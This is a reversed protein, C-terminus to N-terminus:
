FIEERKDNEGKSLIPIRIKQEQEQSKFVLWGETHEYDEGPKASSEDTGLAETKYYCSIEGDLGHQRLVTIYVENNSAIAKVQRQEFSLQGPKDDDIITVTSKCDEGELPQNTEPDYLVVYFDEDPEWDEDDVIGIQVTQEKEGGRFNLITDIKEYDKEEKADGDMTRVGVKGAKESKNIIVVSLKGSSESVMYHLCRFGFHPNKHHEELASALKTEKRFIEGKKIIDKKGTLINGVQKKYTIRPLLSTGEVAQKLQEYTIKDIHETDFKKKIFAKMDERKVREEENKPQV